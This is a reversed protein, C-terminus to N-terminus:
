IQTQPTQRTPSFPRNIIPKKDSEISVPKQENKEFPLPVAESEVPEQVPEDLPPLPVTPSRAKMDMQVMALYGKTLTNDPDLALASEWSDLADEFMGTEYLQSGRELLLKLEQPRSAQAQDSTILTGTDLMALGLEKRVGRVYSLAHPHGPDIALVKEWANLAEHLAGTDYLSCGEQLFSEIDESVIDPLPHSGSSQSQPSTVSLRERVKLLGAKAENISNDRKLIAQWIQGAGVVEGADFLESAERLYEAITKKM